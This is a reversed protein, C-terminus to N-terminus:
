ARRPRARPQPSASISRFSVALHCRCLAGRQSWRAPRRLQRAYARAQLGSRGGPRRCPSRARPRRPRRAAPMPRVRVLERFRRDLRAPAREHALVAVRHLDDQEDGPDAADLRQLLEAGAEDQEEQGQEVGHEAEALFPLAAAATAASCFIIITLARTRRSPSSMWSGPRAAPARRCRRSRPPRRREQRRGAASPPSARPRRTPASRRSSAPRSPRRVRDLRGVRREAVARVHDVHVRVHRAARAREDDGRGAHRGLDAVDRSMSWAVSSASVGSVPLEVLQGALDENM